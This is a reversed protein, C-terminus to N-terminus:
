CCLLFSYWCTPIQASPETIKHCIIWDLIKEYNGGTPIQASPETIKHCYIRACIVTVTSPLGEGDDTVNPNSRFARNNQSKENKGGKKLFIFFNPNSRFARNNQSRRHDM